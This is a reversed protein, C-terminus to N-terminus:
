DSKHSWKMKVLMEEHLRLKLSLESLKGTLGVEFSDAEQRDFKTTSAIEADSSEAILQDLADLEESLSIVEIGLEEALQSTASIEGRILSVSIKAAAAADYVRGEAPKGYGAQRVNIALTEFNKILDSERARLSYIRHSYVERTEARQDFKADIFAAGVVLVLFWIVLNVIKDVVFWVVRQRATLAVEMSSNVPDIEETM